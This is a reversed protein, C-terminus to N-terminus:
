TPRPRPARPAASWIGGYGDIHGGTPTPGKWQEPSCSPFIPKLSMSGGGVKWGGLRALQEVIARVQPLTSISPQLSNVNPLRGQQTPWTSPDDQRSGVVSWVEVPIDAGEPQRSAQEPDRGADPRWPTQGKRPM